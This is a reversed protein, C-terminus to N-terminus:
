DRACAGAREVPSLRVTTRRGGDSGSVRRSSERARELGSVGLLYRALGGAVVDCQFAASGRAKELRSLVVSSSDQVQVDHISDAEGM